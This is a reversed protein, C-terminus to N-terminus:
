IAAVKVNPHAQALRALDTPDHTAIVGGGLRVATAVVFADVAHCSDLGERGLLTGAVRAVRRTVPM